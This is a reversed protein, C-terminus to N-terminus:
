IQILDDIKFKDNQPFAKQSQLIEIELKGGRGLLRDNFCLLLGERGRTKRTSNLSKEKFYRM